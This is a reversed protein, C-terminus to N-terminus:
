RSEELLNGDERDVMITMETRMSAELVATM